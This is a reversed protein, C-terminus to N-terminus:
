IFKTDSNINKLIDEKIEDKYVGVRLIVYPNKYKSLIKPSKVKLNTGYLRKDQKQKDNYLALDNHTIMGQKNVATSEIFIAGANSSMLAGLHKYHWKTPCGKHGSYQCMASVVIRNAFSTKNLKLKKFIM